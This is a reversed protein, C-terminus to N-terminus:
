GVRIGSGQERFAKFSGEMALHSFSDRLAHHDFWPLSGVNKGSGRDRVGVGEFTRQGIVDASTSYPTEFPIRSAPSLLM